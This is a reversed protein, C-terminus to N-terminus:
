TQKDISGTRKSLAKRILSVYGIVGILTFGFWQIAYALHSGENNFEPVSLPVPLEPGQEGELVVYVLAVEYSLQDQIRDLDVRNFVDVEGEAPDAPGLPPRAQSPRIWGTITVDGDPPAAEAIPPTDLPLPVWGRNVIVAEGGGVVLPTIVHFGAQERYVQNRTLVEADADYDGTVTVRRFELSEYDEGAASLLASLEQPQSLYRSETISNQLRVEDLRRLQWFGLNVFVVAVIVVVVHATLWRPTLLRKM